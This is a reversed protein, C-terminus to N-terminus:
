HCAKTKKNLRNRKVLIVIINTIAIILCIFGLELLIINAHGFELYIEKEALRHIITNILEFYYYTGIFYFISVITIVSNSKARILFRYILGTLALYFVLIIIISALTM